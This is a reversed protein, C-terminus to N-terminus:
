GVPDWEGGEEGDLHDDGHDGPDGVRERDPLVQFQAEIRDAVHQETGDHGTAM